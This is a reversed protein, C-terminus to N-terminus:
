VPPCVSWVTNVPMPCLSPVEGERANLGNRMGYGNVKSVQTTPVSIVEDNHTRKIFLLLLAMLIFSINTVTWWTDQLSEPCVSL